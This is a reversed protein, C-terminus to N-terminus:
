VQEILIFWLYFRQWKWCYHCSNLISSTWYFPHFTTMSIHFTIITYCFLMAVMWCFITPHNWSYWIMMEIATLSTFELCRIGFHSELCRIGFHSKIPLYQCLIRCISLKFCFIFIFFFFNHLLNSYPPCTIGINLLDVYWQHISELWCMSGFTDELSLLSSLM